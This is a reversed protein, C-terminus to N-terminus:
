TLYTYICFNETSDPVLRTANRRGHSSMRRPRGTYKGQGFKDRYFSIGTQSPFLPLFLTHPSPFSLTLPFRLVLHLLSYSYRNHVADSKSFLLLFLLLYFILPRTKDSIQDLVISSGCSYVVICVCQRYFLSHM